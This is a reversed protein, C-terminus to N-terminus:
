ISKINKYKVIIYDVGITHVRIIGKSNFITTIRYITSAIGEM